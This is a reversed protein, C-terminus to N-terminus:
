LIWKLSDLAAEQDCIPILNHRRGICGCPRELAEALPLILRAITRYEEQQWKPHDDMVNGKFYMNSLNEAMREVAEQTPETM